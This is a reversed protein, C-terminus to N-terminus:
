HTAPDFAAHAQRLLASLDASVTSLPANRDNPHATRYWHPIVPESHYRAFWEEARDFAVVYPLDFAMTAASGAAGSRTLTDAVHKGVAQWRRTAELGAVTRQPILREIVYFAITLLIVGFAAFLFVGGVYAAAALIIADIIAAVGMDGFISRWGTHEPGSRPKLYGRDALAKFYAREIRQRDQQFRSGVQLLTTEDGASFVSNHLTREFQLLGTAPRLKHVIWGGAPAAGIEWYGREALDLLTAVNERSRVKGSILTGVLGPALAEPPNVRVDDEGSPKVNRDRRSWSSLIALYALDPPRAHTGAPRARGWRM